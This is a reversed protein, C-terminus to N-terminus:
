RIYLDAPEDPEVGALAVLGHLFVFPAGPQSPWILRGGFTKIHFWLLHQLDQPQGSAEGDLLGANKESKVLISNADQYLGLHQFRQSPV